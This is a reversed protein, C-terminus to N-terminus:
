DVYKTMSTRYELTWFIDKGSEGTVTISINSGDVKIHSTATSFSTKEIVDTTGIQYMSSPSQSYFVGFLEAGYAKSESPCYGVITARVLMANYGNQTDDSQIDITMISTETNTNTYGAVIQSWATNSLNDVADFSDNIKARADAGTDGNHVKILGM